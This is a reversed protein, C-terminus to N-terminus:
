TPRTYQRCQKTHTSPPRKHLLKNMIHSIPDEMRYPVHLCLHLSLCISIHKKTMNRFGCLYPGLKEDLLCGLCWRDLLSREVMTMPLLMIPDIGLSPRC